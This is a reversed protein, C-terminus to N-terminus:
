IILVVLLLLMILGMERARGDSTCVDSCWLVHRSCPKQFNHRAPRTLVLVANYFLEVIVVFKNEFKLVVKIEEVVRSKARERKTNKGSNEEKGDCM